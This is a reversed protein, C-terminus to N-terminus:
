SNRTAICTVLASTTSNFQEKSSELKVITFADALCERVYAESFFHRVHENNEFMDREIEIGKGYLDDKTSKCVFCLYGGPKLIRHLEKFMQKTVIDTFYHLSLRAYIVDFTGDEFGTRQSIDLVQFQATSTKNKEQLSAIVVESVDTAVVTYGALSFHMADTGLGCGIELIHSMPSIVSQVELAFTSPGESHLTQSANEAAHRKNWFQKQDSPM